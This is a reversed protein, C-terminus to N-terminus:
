KRLEVDANPVDANVTSSVEVFRPKHWGHFARWFGSPEKPGFMGFDLKGNENEDEYASIAWAGPSVRFQFVANSHPAIRIQQSPHNLFGAADWLAIYVTHNGTAGAIRGSITITPQQAAAAVAGMMSVTLFLRRLLAIAQKTM